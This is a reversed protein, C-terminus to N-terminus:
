NTLQIPDTPLHQKTQVLLDILKDGTKEHFHPRTPWLTKLTQNTQTHRWAQLVKNKTFTNNPHFPIQLALKNSHPPPTLDKHKDRFLTQRPILLAKQIQQHILRQPYGRALFINKLTSIEQTLTRPNSIIRKYRLAQSYIINRKIHHPHHSSYHLILNKDTPKRYLKTQLSNNSDRYITTDLFNAHTKSYDFTFKITDHFNNAHTIFADLSEQTGVWLFFIDDIFRKWLSLRQKCDHTLTEEIDSMFINAYPPAMKTGM